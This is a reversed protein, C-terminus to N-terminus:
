PRLSAAQHFLTEAGAGLAAFREDKTQGRVYRIHIQELVIAMKFIGFVHYYPIAALDAGARECYREIAQQRPMFGPTRSPM